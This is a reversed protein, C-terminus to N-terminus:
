CEADDILHVDEVLCSTGVDRLCHGSCVVSVTFCSYNIFHSLKPVFLGSPLPVTQRGHGYIPDSHILYSCQWGLVNVPLESAMLLVSM